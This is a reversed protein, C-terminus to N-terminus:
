RRRDNRDNCEFCYCKSNYTIKIEQLRFEKKCRECTILGYERPIGILPIDYDGIKVKCHEM